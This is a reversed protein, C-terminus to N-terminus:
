TISSPFWQPFGEEPEQSDGKPNRTASDLDSPGERVAIDPQEETLKSAGTEATFRRTGLTLPDPELVGFASSIYPPDRRGIKTGM